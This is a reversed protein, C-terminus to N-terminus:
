KNIKYIHRINVQNGAGRIIAKASASDCDESFAAAHGPKLSTDFLEQIDGTTLFFVTQKRFYLVSFVCSFLFHIYYTGQVIVDDDLYIAIETDPLFNPMYFRAFTLKLFSLFFFM